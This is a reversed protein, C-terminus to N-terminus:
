YKIFIRQLWQSGSIQFGHVHGFASAKVAAAKLKEQKHTKRGETKNEHEKPNLYPQLNSSYNCVKKTYSIPEHM